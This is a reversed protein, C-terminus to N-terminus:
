NDVRGETFLITAVAVAIENTTADGCNEKGKPAPSICTENTVLRGNIYSKMSWKDDGLYTQLGRKVVVEPSGSSYDYVRNTADIINGNEPTKIGKWWSVKLVSNSDGAVVGLTTTQSTNSTLWTGERAEDLTIKSVGHAFTSPERCAALSLLGLGGLAARSRFSRKKSEKGSNPDGVGNRGLINM